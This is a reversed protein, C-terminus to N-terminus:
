VIKSVIKAIYSPVIAMKRAVLIEQKEELTKKLQSIYNKQTHYLFIQDYIKKPRIGDRFDNAIEQEKGEKQRLYKLLFQIKREIQNNVPRKIDEKQFPIPLFSVNKFPDETIKSKKMRHFEIHIHSSLDKCSAQSVFFVDHSRLKHRHAVEWIYKPPTINGTPSNQVVVPWNLIPLSYCDQLRINLKNQQMCELEYCAKLGSLATGVTDIKPTLVQWNNDPNFWLGDFDFCAAINKM